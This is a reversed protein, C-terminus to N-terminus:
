AGEKYTGTFRKKAQSEADEPSLVKELADKKEQVIKLAAEHRKPDATILAMEELTRADCEAQWKKDDECCCNM